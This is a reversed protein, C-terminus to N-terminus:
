VCALLKDIRNKQLKDAGLVEFYQVFSFTKANLSKSNNFKRLVNQFLKFKYVHLLSGKINKSFGASYCVVSSFVQDKFVQQISIKAM